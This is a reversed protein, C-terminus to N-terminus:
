KARHSLNKDTIGVCDRGLSQYYLSGRFLLLRAAESRGLPVLRRTQILIQEQDSAKAILSLFQVYFPTKVCIISRKRGVLEEGRSWM